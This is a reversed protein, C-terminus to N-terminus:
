INKLYKRITSFKLPYIKTYAVATEDKSQKTPKAKYDAIIEAKIKETEEHSKKSANRAHYSKATNFGQDYIKERSPKSLMVANAVVSMCAAMNLLTEHDLKSLIEKEIAVLAIFDETSNVESYKEAMQRVEDIPVVYKAVEM